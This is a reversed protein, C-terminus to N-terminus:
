WAERHRQYALSLQRETTLLDQWHGSAKGGGALRDARALLSDLNALGDLWRQPIAAAGWRAGALAGTMAGVSDADGGLNVAQTVAEEFSSVHLGLYIATVVSACAFGDSPSTIPHDPQQRNAELVILRMVDCLPSNWASQLVHLAGSFRPPEPDGGWRPLGHDRSLAVETEQTFAITAQLTEGEDIVANSPRSALCSVLFALAAAAAIGRADTHTQLSAQIAAQRLEDPDGAYWLGLPAVRIAAGNGASPVGAALPPCGSALRRVVTRFNGGLGRQAGRPLGPAPRGLELYRHRMEEADFGRKEILVDSVLLAQQTDDTYLGAPRARGLHKVWLQRADLYDHVLGCHRRLRQRSVGEIPAGLADGIALGLLCGRAKDITITM